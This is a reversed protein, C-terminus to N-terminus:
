IHSNIAQLLVAKSKVGVFKQVMKGDKFIMITPISQIGLKGSTKRHHDIDMKCINAKGKMEDAIEDVIPSQVRCPGCWAAWFDILSVGNKITSSFNDDTLNKVNESPPKSMRKRNKLFIYIFLGFLSGAIV